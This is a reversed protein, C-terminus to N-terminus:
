DMKLDTKKQREKMNELNMEFDMEKEMPMKIELYNWIEKVRALHTEIVKM